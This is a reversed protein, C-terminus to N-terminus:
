ADHETMETHVIQCAHGSDEGEVFATQREESERVLVAFIRLVIIGQAVREREARIEVFEHIGDMGSM